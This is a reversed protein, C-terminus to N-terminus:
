ENCEICAAIVRSAIVAALVALAFLGIYALWSM